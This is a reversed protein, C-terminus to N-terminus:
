AASRERQIMENLWPLLTAIQLAFGENEGRRSSTYLGILADDAGWVASGSYGHDPAEDFKLAFYSYNRERPSRQLHEPRTGRSHATSTTNLRRGHGTVKASAHERTAPAFMRVTEGGEPEGVMDFWPIRADHEVHLVAVDASPHRFTSTVPSPPMGSGIVHLREAGRERAAEIVHDATVFHQRDIAFCAGFLRSREDDIPEVVAGVFGPM